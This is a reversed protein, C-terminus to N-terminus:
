PATPDLISEGAVVDDDTVIVHEDVRGTPSVRTARGLTLGIVLVGVAIGGLAFAARAGFADMVTGALLGALPKAGVSCVAYLALIRGIMIDDSELQLRTQAGIQFSTGAAGLLALGAVAVLLSPAVAAILLSSALAARSSASSGVPSRGSVRAVVLTGVFAGVGLLGVLLGYVSADGDLVKTAYVPLVVQWNWAFLFVVISMLLTRRIRRNSWAYEFGARLQGPERKLKHETRLKSRDMLFLSILVASFSLANFAFCWPSRLRRDAVGLAPGVTRTLVEMSSNLSLANPLEDDTVMDRIFSRKVPNDFRVRSGGRGVMAYILPVSASWVFSAVALILAAIGYVSQTAILFRPTRFRGSFLSGPIGFLMLPGFRLAAHLGVAKGSGTIEVIVWIEATLQFWTGIQSLGQGALYLRFNRNRLSRAAGSQNM